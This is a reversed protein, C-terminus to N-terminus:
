DDHVKHAAPLYPVCAPCLVSAVAQGLVQGAPVKETAPDDEHEENDAFVHGAPLNAFTPAVASVSDPAQVTQGAPDDFDAAPFVSDQV